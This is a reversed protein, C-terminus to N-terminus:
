GSWSSTSPELFLCRGFFTQNYNAAFNPQNSSQPISGVQTPTSFGQQVPIPTSSSSQVQNVDSSPPTSTYPKAIFQSRRDCLDDILQQNNEPSRSDLVFHSGSIGTFIWGGMQESPHEERVM